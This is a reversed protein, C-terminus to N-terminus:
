SLYICSDLPLPLSYPLPFVYTGGGDEGLGLFKYLKKRELSIMFPMDVGDKLIAASQPSGYLGRWYAFLDVM